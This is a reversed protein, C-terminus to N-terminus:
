GDFNEVMEIYDKLLPLVDPGTLLRIHDQLGSPPHGVMRSVKLGIQTRQADIQEQTAM